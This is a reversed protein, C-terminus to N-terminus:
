ATIHAKVWARAEELTSFGDDPGIRDIMLMVPGSYAERPFYRRQGDYVVGESDQESTIFVRGDEGYVGREVRSGFFRMTGPDFFHSGSDKAARIIERTNKFGM